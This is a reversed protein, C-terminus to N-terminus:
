WVEEVQVSRAEVIDSQLMTLNMDSAFRAAWACEFDATTLVANGPATTFTVIGTTLSVSSTALVGAKYAITTGTIPFFVDSTVSYAGATWKWQLQFTTTVGDGQNLGTVTNKLPMATAVRDGTRTSIFLFGKSKRYVRFLNEIYDSDKGWTLNWKLKVRDSRENAGVTGSDGDFVVSDDTMGAVSSSLFPKSRSDLYLTTDVPITSLIAM